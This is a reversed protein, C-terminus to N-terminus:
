EVVAQGQRLKEADLAVNRRVVGTEGISPVVDGNVTIELAGANGTMLILGARDPVEYFDGGRLLKTMVLQDSNGDRIQVWSDRLARVVIQQGAPAAAVQESRTEEVTAEPQQPTEPEAAPTETEQQASEPAPLAAVTEPVPLAPPAAEEQPQPRVATATEPARVVPVEAEPTTEPAAVPTRVTAEPAPAAEAPEPTAPPTSEVPAVSVTQTEEAPAPKPEPEKAKVPEPEPAPPTETEEVAPANAMAATPTSPRPAADEAMPPMESVAGTDSDEAQLNEPVPPVPDTVFRDQTSVFYWGGYGAIAILLAAMLIAGRPIGHEPIFSPFALEQTKQEVTGTTDKFRRVVEEGDLGLYEAYGRIFGVAYAHGPLDDYRDEEIAELYPYRIRLTAAVDALEEGRRLRSARLLGGIGGKRGENIDPQTDM